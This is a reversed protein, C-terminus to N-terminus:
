CCNVKKVRVLVIYQTVSYKNADKVLCIVKLSRTHHKFIFVAIYPSRQRPWVTKLACCSKSIVIFWHCIFNKEISFFTWRFFGCYLYEWFTASAIRVEVLWSDRFLNYYNRYWTSPIVHILRLVIKRRLFVKSKPRSVSFLLVSCVNGIRELECM